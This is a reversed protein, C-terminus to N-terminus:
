YKWEPRNDIKYRIGERKEEERKLEEKEHKEEEKRKAYAEKNERFEKM